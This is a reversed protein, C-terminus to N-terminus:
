AGPTMGGPPPPTPGSMAVGVGPGRYPAGTPTPTVRVKPARPRDHTRIRWFVYLNMMHVAGLVALLIGLHLALDSIATVLTREGEDLRYLLLAAGLNLLYFGVVLLHNVATALRDDDFVDALFVGGNRKLTNALYLVLSVAILAYAGYIGVATTDSITAPLHPM